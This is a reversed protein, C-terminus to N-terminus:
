WRWVVPEWSRSQVRRAIHGLGPFPFHPVLLLAKEAIVQEIARKRTRTGAEQDHDWGNGWGPREISAAFHLLMDASYLLSETGSAINLALMGPTHGFAEVATIGTVIDRGPKVFDVRDKIGGLHRKAREIMVPKWEDPFLRGLDVEPKTWHAWEKEGMVYRANPFAPLGDTGLVGSIHDAHGHSLFVVDIEEPEVGLNRLNSPQNGCAPAFEPGVGTDIIVKHTGTDVYLTNVNFYQNQPLFRDTLLEQYEEESAGVAVIRKHDGTEIFGDSVSAAEFNGIKFRYFGAGQTKSM